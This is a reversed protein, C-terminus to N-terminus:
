SHEEGEELMPGYTPPWTSQLYADETSTEHVIKNNIEDLKKALYLIAPWPDKKDRELDATFIDFIKEYIM